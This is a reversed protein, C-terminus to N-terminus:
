AGQQHTSNEKRVTECQLLYWINWKVGADERCGRRTLVLFVLWLAADRHHCAIQRLGSLKYPLRGRFNKGTVVQIKKTSLVRWVKRSLWHEQELTKNKLCHRKKTIIDHRYQFINKIWAIIQYLKYLKGYVTRTQGTSHHNDHCEQPMFQIILIIAAQKQYRSHACNKIYTLGTSQVGEM